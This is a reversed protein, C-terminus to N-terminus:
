VQWDIMKFIPSKWRKRKEHNWHNFTSNLTSLSQWPKLWPYGSDRHEVSWLLHQVQIQRECVVVQMLSMLTSRILLIFLWRKPTGGYSLPNTQAKWGAAGPKIGLCVMMSKDIEIQITDHQFSLILCFFLDPNTWKFFNVNWYCWSSRISCFDFSLFSLLLLFDYFRNEVMSHLWSIYFESAM